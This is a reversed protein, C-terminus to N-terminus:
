ERLSKRKLEFFGDLLSPRGKIAQLVFENLTRRCSLQWAPQPQTDVLVLLYKADQSSVVFVVWHHVADQGGLVFGDEADVQPLVGVEDVM